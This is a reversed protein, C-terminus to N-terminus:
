RRHGIIADRRKRVEDEGIAEAAIEFYIECLQQAATLNDPPNEWRGCKPCRPAPRLTPRPDIKNQATLEVSPGDPGVYAGRDSTVTHTIRELAERWAEKWWRMSNM